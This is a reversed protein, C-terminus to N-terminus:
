EEEEESEEEEETAESQAEEIGEVEVVIRGPNPLKSSGLASDLDDFFIQQPGLTIGVEAEIDGFEDIEVTVRGHTDDYM